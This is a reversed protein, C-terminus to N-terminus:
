PTLTFVLRYFFRKGTYPSNARITKISVPDSAPASVVTYPVATWPDTQGLDTSRQIVTTVNRLHNFYPFEFVPFGDSITFKVPDTHYGSISLGHVYLRLNSLGDHNPDADAGSVAPNAADATSFHQDKWHSYSQLIRVTFRDAVENGVSDTATVTIVSTGTAGAPHSLELHNTPSLSASVASSNSNSFSYTLATSEGAQGAPLPALAVTPFLILDTHEIPNSNDFSAILPLSSFAGGANRIPFQASNGFAAASSMTDKTVRGFVTFGGNQNDLNASNDGLSVFWQSTASDPDGGSKAMSITGYTNSVGFENTIPPDAPVSGLALPGGPNTNLYGGGQIVFGPVSRHIFSHNYDGDAVYQLFNARTVPTRNTFLAFDMTLSGNSAQSTFRVVQDDIEETGFLGSLDISQAPSGPELTQDPLSGNLVPLVM